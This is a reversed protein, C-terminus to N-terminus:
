KRATGAAPDYITLNSPRLGTQGASEGERIRSFAVTRWTEQVAEAPSLGHELILDLYTFDVIASGGWDAANVYGSIPFGATGDLADILKKPADGAMVECAGFHLLRISTAGRLAKGIDDPDITRGGMSLGAASGHSSFYLVVPEAIYRLEAAFREIDALDHVFRHRFRVTPVRQFFARLMEGYSYAPATLGNEWHAELVILWTVGPEPVMRVGSWSGSKGSKDTWQGDFSDGTESLEFWGKGKSGSAEKYEFTFRRDKVRGSLEATGGSMVYTGECKPSEGDGSLTLRMRGYSTDWLGAFTAPGTRTGNWDSWATDGDTRWRGTFSRGDPAFTFEGDGVTDGEKYRFTLKRGALTGELTATTGGSAYSGHIRGDDSRQLELSGFTTDWRGVIGTTAPERGLAPATWAICVLLLATCRRLPLWPRYTRLM